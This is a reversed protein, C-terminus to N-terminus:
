RFFTRAWKQGNVDGGCQSSGGATSCCSGRAFWTATTGNPDVQFGIVTNTNAQTPYNSCTAINDTAGNYTTRCSPVAAYTPAYIMREQWGYLHRVLDMANPNVNRAWATSCGSGIEERIETFPELSGHYMGTKTPPGAQTDFTSPWQSAYAYANGNTVTTSALTILLTWGGGDKTMDCFVKVPPDASSTQITYVGDM